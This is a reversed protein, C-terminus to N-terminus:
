VGSPHDIERDDPSVSAVLEEPSAKISSSVLGGKGEKMTLRKALL